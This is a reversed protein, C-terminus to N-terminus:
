AIGPDLIGNDAAPTSISQNPQNPNLPPDTKDASGAFVDRTNTVVHKAAAAPPRPAAKKEPKNYLFRSRVINIFPTNPPRTAIVAPASWIDGLSAIIIPTVPPIITTSPTDRKSLAFSSSGTPAIGTWKNEPIHPVNATPM